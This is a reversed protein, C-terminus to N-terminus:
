RKELKKLIQRAFRGHPSDPDLDIVQQAVKRAETIPGTKELAALKRFLLKQQMERPPRHDALFQDILRIAEAHAGELFAEELSVELDEFAIEARRRAQFGLTDDPDLRALEALHGADRAPDAGRVEKRLIAVIARARDMGSMEYAKRLEEQRATKAEQKALVKAAVEEATGTLAGLASAYRHGESDLWFVSPFTEVGFQKAVKRHDDNPSVVGPRSELPVDLHVLVFRDEVAKRFADASMVRKDFQVCAGSIDLATFVLLLDKSEQGALERAENLDKVWAGSLPMAPLLTLVLLFWRIM